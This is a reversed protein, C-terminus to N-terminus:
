KEPRDDGSEGGNWYEVTLRDEADKMVKSVENYDKGHAIFFGLRHYSSEPPHIRTFPSSTIEVSHIGKMQRVFEVGRIGSLIGKREALLFKVGAYGTKPRTVKPSQGVAIRIQEQLLDIGTALQIAQPIMGGALRANVEIVKCGNETWKVETHSPGNYFGVAELTKRVVRELEVRKDQSLPAPFIHRSEIFHPFGVTTKKTIGICVSKGKHTLMEVSYEPGEVYEELLVTQATPQGRINKDIELLRAVQHNAEDRNRCMLVGKSGSDDAPKVICPFDVSLVDPREGNQITMYKPQPIDAQQLVRRTEAKNRCIRVTESTNEPIGWKQNLYAVTELYFDSTTTIGSIAQPSLRNEITKILSEFRNTDCTLVEAPTEGLGRYRSLDGTVFIPIFGMQSAKHLAQMGSGTTNSEIFLLINEM